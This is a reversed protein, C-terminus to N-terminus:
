LSGDSAAPDSRGVAMSIERQLVQRQAHEARLTRRWAAAHGDALMNKIKLHCEIGPQEVTRCFVGGFRGTAALQIREECQAALRTHRQTFAQQFQEAFAASQAALDFGLTRFQQWQRRIALHVQWRFDVIVGVEVDTDLMRLVSAFQEARFVRQQRVVLVHRDAVMAAGRGNTWGAGVHTARFALGQRGTLGLRGETWARTQIVFQLQANPNALAVVHAVGNGNTVGGIM